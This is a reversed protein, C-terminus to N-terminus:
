LLMRAGGRIFVPDDEYIIFYPLLYGCLISTYIIHIMSVFLVVNLILVNCFTDSMPIQVYTDVSLYQTMRQMIGEKAISTRLLMRAWWLCPPKIPCGQGAVSHGRIFVPDDEVYNWPLSRPCAEGCYRKSLSWHFTHTETRTAPNGRSTGLIIGIKSLNECMVRFIFIQFFIISRKEIQEADKM